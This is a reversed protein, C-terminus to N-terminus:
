NVIQLHLHLKMQWYQQLSVENLGRAELVSDEKKKVM